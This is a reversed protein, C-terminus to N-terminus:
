QYIFPNFTSSTNTPSVGQMVSQPSNPVNSNNVVSTTTTQQQTPTQTTAPNSTQTAAVANAAQKEQREAANTWTKKTRDVDKNIWSEKNNKMYDLDKKAKNVRGKGYKNGDNKIIKELSAKKDTFRAKSVDKFGANALGQSGFANGLGIQAKGIGRQIGTGMWGRKGAFITAATAATGLMLNRATHSEKKQPQGDEESFRKINYIM